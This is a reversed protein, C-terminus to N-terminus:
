LRELLVAHSRSIRPSGVPRLGEAEATAISKLFAPEKVHGKPEAFLVRGAPKLAARIEAFLRGPDGVEHVMAFALAFDIRGALSDVGLSELTCLRPEIREALNARRARRLLADLMGQQLDVCIVRGGPGVLEALPLSFFGMASGIDMVCMGPAVHPVLIARPNQILKRLPSALFYGLWVPCVRHKGSSEM